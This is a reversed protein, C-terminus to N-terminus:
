RRRTYGSARLVAAAIVRYGADTPHGDGRSCIFTLACIRAGERTVSGQPNPASPRGTPTCSIPRRRPSASNSCALVECAPLMQLAAQHSFSGREGQIAVRRLKRKKTGVM